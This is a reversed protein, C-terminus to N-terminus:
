KNLGDAAIKLINEVETFTRGGGKKQIIQGKIPIGQNRFQMFLKKICKDM